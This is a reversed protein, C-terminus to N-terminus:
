EPSASHVLKPLGWTGCLELDYNIMEAGDWEAVSELYFNCAVPHITDEQVVKM